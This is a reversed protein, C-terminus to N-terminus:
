VLRFSKMKNAKNIEQRLKRYEEFANQEESIYYFEPIYRKLQMRKHTIRNHAYASVVQEKSIGLDEIINNFDEYVSHRGRFARVPITRIYTINSSNVLMSIIRNHYNKRRRSM